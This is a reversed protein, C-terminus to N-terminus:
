GAMVVQEEMGILGVMKGEEGACNDGGVKGKEGTDGGISSASFISTSAITSDSVVNLFSRGVEEYGLNNFTFTEGAAWSTGLTSSLCWVM